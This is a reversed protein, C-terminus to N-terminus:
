TGPQGSIKAFVFMENNSVKRGKARQREDFRRVRKALATALRDSLSVLMGTLKFMAAALFDVFRNGTIPPMLYHFLLESDALSLGQSKFQALYDDRARYLVHKSIRYKNPCLHDTILLRGDDAILQGVHQVLNEFRADDVIHFLVDFIMILDFKGNLAGTELAAATVDVQKFSYEPFRNSLHEITDSSIDLGVYDRVGRAQWYETYFGSGCGIDLVRCEALPKDCHRQLMEGLVELRRAYIEVNYHHGVSRHGVVGLDSGSVVRDQWYAGADFDQHKTDNM